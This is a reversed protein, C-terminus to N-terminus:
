KIITTDPSLCDQVKGLDSYKIVTGSTGSTVLTGSRQADAYTVCDAGASRDFFNVVGADIYQKDAAAWWWLRNKIIPGGYEGSINYIKKIPAGSLFGSTGRVFQEETVNNGQIKDHQFTGVASGKLVNSGSKTVLNISLGSSQVSVDGGGNTVSIQDFSDFNFYAPSSNSSLDTISGGELNWQVNASTGRSALGVQQGSSSGGVNLGAQVGPTMNIIQWPDRATPIKELVDATFTAGTTTKKTDVVPSVASITVEETMQGIELRQDVGANFGTTIVVNPRVAKKFSALEFTVTFTGIPVSPFQYTGSESTVAVLPQQLAEGTVTVTVGPLVGGSPDTVKGFISGIAQAHAPVAWAALIGAALLIARFGRMDMGGGGLGRFRLGSRRLSSVVGPTSQSRIRAIRAGLHSPTLFVVSARFGFDQVPTPPTYTRIFGM